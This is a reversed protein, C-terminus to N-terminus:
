LIGYFEKISELTNVRKSIKNVLVDNYYVLWHNNDEEIKYM